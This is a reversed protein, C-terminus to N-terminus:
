GISDPVLIEAASTELAAHKLNSGMSILRTRACAGADQQWNLTQGGSYTKVEVFQSSGALRM